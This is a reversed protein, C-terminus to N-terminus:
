TDSAEDPVGKYEICLMTMDDFQEADRVFENVSTRVTELIRDPPREPESNLAALMRETGFMENGHATAEPVGDTYVFLKDGKELQFEYERYKIGEIAGIVLGHRDKFLKFEGDRHKMLAPYEHGANAATIRGTSIELIGLWVTVFMEVQNDSCIGENTKTLIEGASRGLMACSQLIVKSVMMFLAAPIGKGSVDAIVMALHDDDVMFYDYFDGGVEKAPNMSACLDFRKGESGNLSVQPLASMQIEAALRLDGAIREEDKKKEIRRAQRRLILRILWANVLAAILVIIGWFWGREFFALEKYIRVSLEQDGEELSMIFHYEGGRLNTYDVSSFDSRNVTIPSRDFGELYYSVRPNLPAYNLVFGSVTLKHTDSPITFGGDDEPWIRLGDADVYPVALKLKTEAVYPAEINVRTVGSTGAIYLSGDEALESYSNATAVNHLGNNVDYHVTEITDNSLLQEVQAVYIGNSSLVWLEGKSNEYVDYNNAYPFKRITTVQHDPTMYALSNGTVIWVLNEKRSYSVRMVVDSGLGDESGFHTIGDPRIMFLGGGDTGLIYEGDFAETVTLVGVNTLGDEQRYVKEVSDGQIISLGGSQAVLIRGDACEYIARCKESVMGDEPTFVVIEGKAYRTLGDGNWACIWLNGKSDRRVSRIRTNYLYELLDKQELDKGSATVAKTLPISEVVKGGQVAILGEDSALFLMSDYLCTSNIVRSPMEWREFLDEFQDPMVKMVGQRTSAFWLNGQYDTMVRQVSNDMPVGELLAIGGEGLRGIGNRACVWLQGDIEEFSEPEALVGLDMVQADQFANLVDGYYVESGM